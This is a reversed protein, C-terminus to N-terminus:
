ENAGIEFESVGNLFADHNDEVSAFHEILTAQAGTEVVVLVRQQMLGAQAGGSIHSIQIPTQAQTNKKVWILVGHDFSAQNQQEFYSVGKSPISALKEAIVAQQADNADAFSVVEIGAESQMNSASEDFQGNVFVLKNAELGQIEALKAIAADDAKSAAQLPFENLPRLNLYRWDEHKKTPLALDALATQAQAQKDNLFALATM